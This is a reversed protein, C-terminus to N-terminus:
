RGGVRWPHAVQVCVCYFACVPSGRIWVALSLVCWLLLGPFLDPGFWGPRSWFVVMRLDCASSVCGDCGVVSWGLVCVLCGGRAVVWSEMVSVFCVCTGLCSPLVCVNELVCSFVRSLFSISFRIFAGCVGDVCWVVGSSVCLRM